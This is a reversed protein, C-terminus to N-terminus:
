LILNSFFQCDEHNRDEFLPFNQVAKYKELDPIFDRLHNTIPAEVGTAMEVDRFQFFIRPQNLKSQCMSPQNKM